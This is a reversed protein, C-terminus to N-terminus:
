YTEYRVPVVELRPTSREVFVGSEAHHFIVRDEYQRCEFRVPVGNPLEAIADFSALLESGFEVLDPASETSPLSPIVATEPLEQSPATEQDPGWILFCVAAVGTASLPLLWRHLQKWLAPEPRRVTRVTKVQRLVRHELEVPVPAPKLRKLESEITQLELDPESM